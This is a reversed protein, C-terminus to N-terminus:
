RTYKDQEIDSLLTNVLVLLEIHIDEPLEPKLLKNLGFVLTLMRDVTERFLEKNSVQKYYYTKHLTQYNLELSIRSIKVLTDNDWYSTCFASNSNLGFLM